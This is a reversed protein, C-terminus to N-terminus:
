FHQFPGPTGVEAVYDSYCEAMTATESGSKRPDYRGEIAPRSTEVEAVIGTTVERSIVGGMNFLFAHSMTYPDGMEKVVRRAELWQWVSLAVGVEPAVSIIGMWKLRRGWKRLLPTKPFVPVEWKWKGSRGMGMSVKYWECWAEIATPPNLHVCKWSCILFISLCSLIIDLTNRRADAAIWSVIVSSLGASSTTNALM